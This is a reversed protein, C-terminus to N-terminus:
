NDKMDQFKFVAGLLREGARNFDRELEIDGKIMNWIEDDAGTNSMGSEKGNWIWKRRRVNYPEWPDAGNFFNIYVESMRQATQALSDFNRCSPQNFMMPVGMSHWTFGHLPGPYPDPVRIEYMWVRKRQKVSADALGIIPRAFMASTGYAVIAHAPTLANKFPPSSSIADVLKRSADLNKIIEFLGEATLNALAPLFFLAAEDKTHGSIVRACWSPLDAWYEPSYMPVANTQRFWNPDITPTAAASVDIHHVLRGIPISRLSALKQEASATAPIGVSAVLKDFVVQAKELSQLAPYPSSQIIAQNFLPTKGQLHFWISLAGASEGSVTLLTKNGHFHHIYSHIWKLALKQDHLGQNLIPVEGNAEAEAILERSSLFGLSNVRYNITVIIIPEGLEMSRKVLHNGDFETTNDGANFAGGHIYAFVPLREGKKDFIAEPPGYINVHLCDLESQRQDMSQKEFMNHMIIHINDPPQPCKPGYQSADLDGKLETLSLPTATKFRAPIRAFPINLFNAVGQVSIFGHLRLDRITLTREEAINNLRINNETITRWAAPALPKPTSNSM